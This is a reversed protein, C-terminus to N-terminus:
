AQLEKSLMYMRATYGQVTCIAIYPKADDYSKRVVTVYWGATGIYTGGELGDSALCSLVEDKISYKTHGKPNAVDLFAVADDFSDERWEIQDATIM